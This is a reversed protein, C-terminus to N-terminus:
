FVGGRRGHIRYNFYTIIHSDLDFAIDNFSRNTLRVLFFSLFFFTRFTAYEMDFYILERVVRARECPRRSISMIIINNNGTYPSNALFRHFVLHSFITGNFFKLLVMIRNAYCLRLRASVVRPWRSDNIYYTINYATTHQLPIIRRMIREIRQYKKKKVYAKIKIIKRNNHNLYWSGLPTLLIIFRTHALFSFFVFSFNCRM